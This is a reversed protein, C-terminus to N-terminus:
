QGLRKAPAYLGSPLSSASGIAANDPNSSVRAPATASPQHLRMCYARMGAADEWRVVTVVREEFDSPRLSQTAVRDSLTPDFRLCRRVDLLIRWYSRM